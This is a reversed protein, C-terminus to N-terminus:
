VQRRVEARTRAVAPHRADVPLRPDADGSNPGRDLDAREDEPDREATMRAEPGDEERDEDAVRESRDEPDEDPRRSSPGPRVHREFGVSGGNPPLDGHGYGRSRTRSQPLSARHASTQGDKPQ